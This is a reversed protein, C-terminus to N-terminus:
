QIFSVFQDRQVVVIMKRLKAFSEPFRPTKQDLQFHSPSSKGTTYKEAQKLDVDTCYSALGVLLSEIRRRSGHLKPLIKQLIQIDCTTNRSWTGEDSLNHDIECYKLFESPTRFGFEMSSGELLSFLDTITTKTDSLDDGLATTLTEKSRPKQHFSVFASSRDEPARKPKSLGSGSANMYDTLNTKTLSFEIVNARDLVKPSFMYTTEDINVTGVAFLNKPIRIEEEVAEGAATKVNPGNRHLSIPDGSEMASLFDAFYREVHSLNMEDLILFFPAGPTEHARLILDLVRTSVFKEEFPNYHGLVQRNDTWDAGVPVLEYGDEGVLWQSFKLALQTKGTGSTGTLLVFPKALLSVVCRRLLDESYILGSSRIAASAEKLFDSNIMSLNDSLHASILKKSHFWQEELTKRARRLASSDQLLEWYTEKLLAFKVKTRAASPGAKGGDMLDHTNHVAHFWILDGTLHYFPQAANTESVTEGLAAMKEIFRPAIFDFSIKNETLQGQDIADLVCALMAPKYLRPGDQTKAVKLNELIECFVRLRQDIDTVDVVTQRDATLSLVRSQILTNKIAVTNTFDSFPLTGNHASLTAFKERYIDQSIKVPENADIRNTQFKGPEFESISYAAGRETSHFVVNEDSYKKLVEFLDAPDCESPKDPIPLTSNVNAISKLEDICLKLTDQGPEPLQDLDLLQSAREINNVASKKSVNPGLLYTNESSGLTKWKWDIPSSITAIIRLRVFNEWKGALQFSHGLDDFLTQDESNRYTTPIEEADLETYLIEGGSKNVVFIVDTPVLKSFKKQNWYFHKKDPSKLIQYNRQGPESPQQGKIEYIM